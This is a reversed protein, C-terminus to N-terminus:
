HLFLEITLFFYPDPEAKQTLLKAVMYILWM